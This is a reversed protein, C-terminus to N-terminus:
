YFDGNVLNELTFGTANIIRILTSLNPERKGNIIQSVCAPTIKAFHALDRQTWNLYKIAERLNVGFTRYDYKSM